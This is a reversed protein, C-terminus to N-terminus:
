ALGQFTREALMPKGNYLSYDPHLGEVISMRNFDFHFYAYEHPSAVSNKATVISFNPTAEPQGNEDLYPKYDREADLRYCRNMTSILNGKDPRVWYLDHQNLFGGNKKVREESEKKVQTTTVGLVDLSKCYSKFLGVKYEELNNASGRTEYLSLYDLIVVDVTEDNARLVDVKRSLAEMIDELFVVKSQADTQMPFMQGRWSRLKRVTLAAEEHEQNTFHREGNAYRLYDMYSVPRLGSWNRQIRRATLEMPSWEDGIYFTNYGLKNWEDSLTESLITKGGGSVNGILWAKKTTMLEAFGGSQRLSAFPMRIVRGFLEPAETMFEIFQSLLANSSVFEIHSKIEEAEDDTKNKVLNKLAQMPNYKSHLGCFDALDGKDSLGLDLVIANPLHEAKIKQAAAKGPEDCDYAIYIEGNWKKNLESQMENNIAGEGGCGCFAPIGYHQAAIVSPEGNCLILPLAKEYAQKIARDLGYWCNGGNEGVWRFEPKDLFRARKGSQTQWVLAPRGYITEECWGATKYTGVPVHHRMEYDALNDIQVKTSSVQIGEGKQPRAISMLDALEYLSGSEPYASGQVFYKWAGHEGDDIKLSFANSDSGSKVPHSGRYRGNAFKWGKWASLIKDATSEM